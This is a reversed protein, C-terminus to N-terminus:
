DIQGIDAPVLRVRCCYPRFLRSILEYLAFGHCLFMPEEALRSGSLAGRRSRRGERQSPAFPNKIQGQASPPPAPSSVAGDPLAFALLDQQVTTM